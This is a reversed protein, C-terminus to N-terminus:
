KLGIQHLIKELVKRPVEQSKHRGIRVKDGTSQSKYEKHGTNHKNFRYDTKRKMLRELEGWTM